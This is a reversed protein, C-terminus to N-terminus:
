RVFTKQVYNKVDQESSCLVNILEDIGKGFAKGIELFKNENRQINQLIGKRGFYYGFQLRVMVPDKDYEKMDILHHRIIKKKEKNDLDKYLKFRNIELLKETLNEKESNLLNNKNKIKSLYWCLCWDTVLMEHQHFMERRLDERTILPNIEEQLKENSYQKAIERIQLEAEEVSNAIVRLGLSGNIYHKM